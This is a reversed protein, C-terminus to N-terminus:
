LLLLNGYKEEKAFFHKLIKSFCRLSLHVGSLLSKKLEEKKDETMSTIDYGKSEAYTLFQYNMARETIGSIWGQSCITISPHEIESIPLGLVISLFIIMNKCSTISGSTPSSM